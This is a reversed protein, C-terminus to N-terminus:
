PKMVMFYPMSHKSFVNGGVKTKATCKVYLNCYFVHELWHPPAYQLYTKCSASAPLLQLKIGVQSYQSSMCRFWHRLTPQDEQEWSRVVPIVDRVLIGPITRANQPDLASGWVKLNLEKSNSCGWGLLWGASQCINIVPLPNWLSKGNM